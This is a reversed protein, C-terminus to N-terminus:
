TEHGTDPVGRELIARMRHLSHFMRSKVTGVPISLVEAAETHSLGQYVVLVVTARLDASLTNLLQEADLRAAAHGSSHADYDPLEREVAEIVRLVRGRKRLYDIWAHHALTHVYTTFRALPRARRRHRYLRVFTEQM